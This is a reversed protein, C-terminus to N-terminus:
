EPQLGAQGLLTLFQKPTSQDIAVGVLKGDRNFVFTKPIGTVHFLKNVKGDNDILVPPHYDKGSLFSNVTFADEASISLIVLGENQYHTYIADLAPMEARCPPCWTAWFNVLVIKGHLQSLTWTQQNLDKLTFDAKAVDAEDAALVDNAKQYLPDNLSVTVGEYRALRALDMYPMPPQDGKAPVPTEALAKSLADAVSQLAEHGQDGETVLNAAEDAFKVKDKGPPLADIETAVKITAKPREQEPLARLGGLEGSIRASASAHLDPAVAFVVVLFLASSFSSAIRTPKSISFM